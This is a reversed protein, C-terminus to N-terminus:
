DNSVTIDVSVNLLQTPNNPVNTETLTFMFTERPMTLNRPEAQIVVGGSADTTTDAVPNTGFSLNVIGEYAEQALDVGETGGPVPDNYLTGLVRTDASSKLTQAPLTVDQGMMMVGLYPPPDITVNITLATVPFKTEDISNATDPDERYVGMEDAAPLRGEDEPWVYVPVAAAAAKLGTIMVGDGDDTAVVRITDENPNYFKWMYSDDRNNDGAEIMVKCSNLMVCTVDGGTVAAVHYDDPDMDDDDGDATPADQLGVTLAWPGNDVVSPAVNMRVIVNSTAVAGTTDTAQVPISIDVIPNTAVDSPVETTADVTLTLMSTAEDLEWKLAGFRATNTVAGLKYTRGEPTGGTFGTSVDVPM